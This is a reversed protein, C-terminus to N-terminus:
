RHSDEPKLTSWIDPSTGLAAPHTDRRTPPTRNLEVTESVVAAGVNTLLFGRLRSRILNAWLCSPQFSSGSLRIYQCLYKSLSDTPCYKTPSHFNIAQQKTKM